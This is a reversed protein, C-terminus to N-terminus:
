PHAPESLLKLTEEADPKFASKPYKDLFTKLAAAAETKKGARAAEVADRFLKVEDTSVPRTGNRGKWYLQSSSADQKSGRLGVVNTGGSSPQNARQAAHDLKLQLRELTAALTEAPKADEARSKPAFLILGALLVFTRKM